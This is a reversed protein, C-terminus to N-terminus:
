SITTLKIGEGRPGEKEARLVGKRTPEDLKSPDFPQGPFLGINAFSEVM